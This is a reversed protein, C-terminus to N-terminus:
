KLTEITPNDGNLKNELKSPGSITIDLIERMAKRLDEVNDTKLNNIAIYEILFLKKSLFTSYDNM